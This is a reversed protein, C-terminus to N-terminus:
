EEDENEEEKNEDKRLYECDEWYPALNLRCMFSIDFYDKEKEDKLFTYIANRIIPNLEKMQANSLHECHFDEMYCRVYAAIAKAKFNIDDNLQKEFSEILKAIKRKGKQDSDNFSKVFMERVINSNIKGLRELVEKNKM